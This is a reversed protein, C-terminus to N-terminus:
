RERIAEWAELVAELEREVMGAAEVVQSTPGVDAGEVIRYLTALDGNITRLCSEIAAAETDRSANAGDARFAEAAALTDIHPRLDDLRLTNIAAYASDPDTHSADM